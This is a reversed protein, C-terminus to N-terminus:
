HKSSNPMTRSHNSLQAARGSGQSPPSTIHYLRSTGSVNTAKISIKRIYSIINCSIGPLWCICKLIFSLTFPRHAYHSSRRSSIYNKKPTPQPEFTLSVIVDDRIILTAARGVFVCLYVCITPTAFRAGWDWLCYTFLHQFNFMNRPIINLIIFLM